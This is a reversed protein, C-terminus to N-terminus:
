MAIILKIQVFFLNLAESGIHYNESACHAGRCHSADSYYLNDVQLPPWQGDANEALNTIINQIAFFYRKQAKM